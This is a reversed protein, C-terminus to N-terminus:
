SLRTRISNSKTSNSNQKWSFTSGAISPKEKQPKFRGRMRQALAIRRALDYYKEPPWRDFLGNFPTRRRM